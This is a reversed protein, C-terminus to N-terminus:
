DDQDIAALLFGCQRCATEFPSAPTETKPQKAPSGLTDIASKMRELNDPGATYIVANDLFAVYCSSYSM